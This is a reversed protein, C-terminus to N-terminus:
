ETVTVEVVQQNQVITGNALRYGFKFQFRGPDLLHGRYLTLNLTAPLTVNSQVPEQGLSAFDGVTWPLWDGNATLKFAFPVKRNASPQYTSTVFISVKQNVDVPDVAIRSNLYITEGWKTTATHNFSKGDLSISGAMKTQTTVPQGNVDTATALELSPLTVAPTNFHLHVEHVKVPLSDNSKLLINVSGDAKNRIEPLVQSSPPIVEVQIPTAPLKLQKIKAPTEKSVTIALKGHEDLSAITNLNGTFLYAPIILKDPFSQIGIKASDRRVWIVSLVEYPIEGKFKVPTYWTFFKPNSQMEFGSRFCPKLGSEVLSACFNVLDPQQALIYDGNGVEHGIWGQGFDKPLSHRPLYYDNLGLMDLAPLKSWYPVCGAADVALVPRQQGFATQLLRGMVQGDWEWREGLARQNQEHQFQNLTYYGGALLLLFVFLRRAMKTDLLDWGQVIAYTVLYTFVVVLPLLHRFAPFIDGGIFAVYSSWTITILLLPILLEAPLKKRNFLFIVLIALGLFSFPSLSLLGAWLYQGGALFHKISPSLKVLATNPVWAHYYWLRFALQSSYCLVPGTLIRAATWLSAQTVGRLLFWSALVIVTFLIGDPRTIALAGLLISLLGIWLPRPSAHKLILFTLVICWALLSAILPQELGGITWVAVPAALVFCLQGVVLPFLKSQPFLSQYWYANALLVLSMNLLGLFRASDILDLHLWGLGACLLLWLLNSYGEVPIGDTWTLGQGELLRQAYRLSILADDSCFPYYYYAHLVLIGWPLLLTLILFRPQILM